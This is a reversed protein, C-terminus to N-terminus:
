TDGVIGATAANAPVPPFHHVVPRVIGGLRTLWFLLQVVFRKKPNSDGGNGKENKGATLCVLGIIILIIIIQMSISSMTSRGGMGRKKIIGNEWVFVIDCGYLRM